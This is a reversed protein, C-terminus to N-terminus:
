LVSFAPPIQKFFWILGAITDGFKFLVEVRRLLRESTLSSGIRLAVDM